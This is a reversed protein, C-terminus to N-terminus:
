QCGECSFAFLDIHIMYKCSVLCSKNPASFAYTFKRMLANQAGFDGMMLASKAYERHMKLM